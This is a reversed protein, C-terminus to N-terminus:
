SLHLVFNADTGNPVDPPVQVTAWGHAGNYTGTGGTIPFPLAKGKAFLDAADFLGQGTIQGGTLQLTATCFVEGADQANGSTTMCYGGARGLKSGGAHDFVDGAYVYLNGPNNGKGGLDLSAQQTDHEFLRLTKDQTAGATPTLAYVIAAVVAAAAFIALLATRHM